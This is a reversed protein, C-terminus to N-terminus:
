ALVFIPRWLASMDTSFIVYQLCWSSWLSIKRDITITGKWSVKWSIHTKKYKLKTHYEWLLICFYIYIFLLCTQLISLYIHMIEIDLNINSWSGMAGDSDRNLCSPHILISCLILYWLYRRTEFYRFAGTNKFLLICYKYSLFGQGRNWIQKM